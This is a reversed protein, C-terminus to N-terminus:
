YRGLIVGDETMVLYQYECVARAAELWSYCIIVKWGAERLMDHWHKQEATPKNGPMKMEVALGIYKAIMDGKDWGKMPFLIDPIGAEMGEAKM